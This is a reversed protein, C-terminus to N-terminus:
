VPPANDSPAALPASPVAVLPIQRPDTPTRLPRRDAESDSEGGTVQRYGSYKAKLSWAIYVLYFSNLLNLVLAVPLYFEYVLHIGRKLLSKFDENQWMEASQELRAAEEERGEAILREREKELQEPVVESLKEVMPNIAKSVMPLFVFYVVVGVLLVTASVTLLAYLVTATKPNKKSVTYMACVGTALTFFSLSLRLYDVQGSVAAAFGLMSWIVQWVGL